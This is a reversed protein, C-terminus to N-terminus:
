GGYSSKILVAMWAIFYAFAGFYWLFCFYMTDTVGKGNSLKSLVMAILICVAMAIPFFSLAPVSWVGVCLIAIIMFFVIPFLLFLIM